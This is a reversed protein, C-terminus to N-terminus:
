KTDESDSQGDSFRQKENETQRARELNMGSAFAWTLTHLMADEFGDFPIAEMYIGAFCEIVTAMDDIEEPKFGIHQLIKVPTDAKVSLLEQRFREGQEIFKNTTGNGAM